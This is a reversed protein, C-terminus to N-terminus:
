DCVERKVKKSGPKRKKKLKRRLMRIRWIDHWLRPAFALERGL